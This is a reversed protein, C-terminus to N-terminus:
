SKWRAMAAKKAITTREQPTLKSARVNGGALGGKRWRTQAVSPQPKPDSEGSAQKFVALAVQTFDKPTYAWRQNKESV